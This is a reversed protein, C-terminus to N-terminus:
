DNLDSKEFKKIWRHDKAEKATIRFEPDITLLQRVLQQAEISIGLKDMIEMDYKGYRVKKIITKDDNGDFPPIGTLLIYLIVGISWM